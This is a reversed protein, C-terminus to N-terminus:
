AAGKTTSRLGISRGPQSCTELWREVDALRYRRYKGLTICPMAGSRTSEYVWSKPVSLYEAVEDATLLRDTM